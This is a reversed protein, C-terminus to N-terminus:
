PEFPRGSGHGRNLSVQRVFLPRSRTTMDLDLYSDSLNVPTSLPKRDDLFRSSLDRPEIDSREQKGLDDAHFLM